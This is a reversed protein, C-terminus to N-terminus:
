FFRKQSDVDPGLGGVGVGVVPDTIKSGAILVM